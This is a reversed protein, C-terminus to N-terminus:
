KTQPKAKYFNARNSRDRLIAIWLRSHEPQSIFPLFKDNIEKNKQEKNIPQNQKIRRKKLFVKGIM